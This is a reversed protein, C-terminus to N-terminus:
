KTFVKLEKCRVCDLSGTPSFGQTCQCASNCGLGRDCEEGADLANNGCLFYDSPDVITLYIYYLKDVTVYWCM